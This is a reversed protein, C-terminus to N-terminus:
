SKNKKIYSLRDFYYPDLNLQKAQYEAQELSTCTTMRHGTEGGGKIEWREEGATNSTEFVRYDQRESAKM